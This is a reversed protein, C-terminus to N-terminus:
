SNQSMTVFKESKQFKEPNKSNQTEQVRPKGAENNTLNRTRTGKKASIKARNELRMTEWIVIQTLKVSM